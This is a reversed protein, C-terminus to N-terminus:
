RDPSIGDLTIRSLMPCLLIIYDKIRAALNTIEHGSLELLGLGGAGGRWGRSCKCLCPELKHSVDSGVLTQSEGFKM